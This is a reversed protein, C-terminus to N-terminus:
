GGCVTKHALVFFLSRQQIHHVLREYNVWAKRRHVSTYLLPPCNRPASMTPVLCQMM